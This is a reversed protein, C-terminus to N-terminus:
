VATIGIGASVGDLDVTSFVAYGARTADGGITVEVALTESSIYDRHARVAELVSLTGTVNLHYMGVPDDSHDSQGIIAAAYPSALSKGKSTRAVSMAPLRTANEMGMSNTLWATM